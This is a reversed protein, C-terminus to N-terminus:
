FVLIKKASGMVEHFLTLEQGQMEWPANFQLTGLKKDGPYFTGQNLNNLNFSTCKFSNGNPPKVFFDVEYLRRSRSSINEIQFTLSTARDNKRDLKLSKGHKRWM